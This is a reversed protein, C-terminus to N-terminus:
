EAATAQAPALHPSEDDHLYLIRRVEEIADPSGQASHPSRVIKESRVGDVHASRYEVVGDNGEEVPGDTDVAIISHAAVGNVVPFASLTRVFRNAPSMNDVANLSRLDRFNKLDPNLTLMSATVTTVRAPLTILRAILGRVWDSAALFSGRHPTCLFVVRRVFPLPEVFAVDHLLARDAEPLRLEEFPRSSLNKWLADGLSVSTMKTLLGGQSHGIVVLSRLATDTGDPDLSQVARKLKDRLLYASYAIPSASNYTFFWPEFRRNIRPDNDLVNVMEAWRAPSSGTGHVFVVPIRGRVHPRLAALLGKDFQGTLRGLFLDIEQRIVPAEAVMSALVASPEKELPIDRGAIRVTAENPDTHLELRAEIRRAAVQRRVNDIRLLATVPTKLRPALFEESAFTPDPAAASAALPAGIGPTRFRNKLGQVELEAVPLFDHLHRGNWELAAPDFRIDLSGIPLDFHVAGLALASDEAHRLALTLGRNYIDTATRLRPDFPEPLATGGFLYSWAYVASMLAYRRDDKREAHLFSLEALAFWLSPEDTELAKRHLFDLTGTPSRKWTEHVGFRELVNVSDLSATSETLANTTLAAHVSRADMRRVGIPSTACGQLLPLSLLAALALLSLRRV